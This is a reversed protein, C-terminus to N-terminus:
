IYIESNKWKRDIAGAGGIGILVKKERERENKHKGGVGYQFGKCRREKLFLVDSMMIIIPGYIYSMLKLVKTSERTNLFSSM